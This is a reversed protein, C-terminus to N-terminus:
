ARAQRAAAPARRADHRRVLAGAGSLGARLVAGACPGPPPPGRLDQRVLHYLVAVRDELARGAGRPGRRGAGPGEGLLPHLRPLRRPLQVGDPQAARLAARGEDGHRLPPWDRVAVALLAPQLVLRRADSLEPFEPSIARRGDLD